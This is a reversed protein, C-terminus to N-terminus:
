QKMLVWIASHLNANSILTLLKVNQVDQFCPATRAQPPSSVPPDSLRLSTGSGPVPRLARARAIRPTPRLRWWKVLHSVPAEPASIVHHFPWGPAHTLRLGPHTSGVRGDQWAPARVGTEQWGLGMARMPTRGGGHAGLALGLEALGQGRLRGAPGCSMQVTQAEMRLATCRGPSFKFGPELARRLPGRPTQVWARCDCVVGARCRTVGCM